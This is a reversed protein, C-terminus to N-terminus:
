FRAVLSLGSGHISPTPVVSVTAARRAGGVFVFITGM